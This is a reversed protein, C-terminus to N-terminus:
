DEFKPYVIPTNLSKWMQKADHKRTLSRYLKSIISISKIKDGSKRIGVIKGVRIDIHLKPM